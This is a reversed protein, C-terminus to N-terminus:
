RGKGEFIRITDEITRQLVTLKKGAARTKELVLRNMLEDSPQCIKGITWACARKVDPDDDREFLTVVERAVSKENMQGLGLVAGARVKPSRDNLAAKLQPISEKGMLALANIAGTRQMEDDSKLMDLLIPRSHEGFRALAVSAEAVVAESDDKMMEVLFDATEKTCPMYGLSKAVNQRVKEPLSSDELQKKLDPFVATGLKGMAECATQQIKSSPDKFGDFVAPFAEKSRTEGLGWIAIERVSPNKSYDSLLGVNLGGMGALARICYGQVDVGSKEFTEVIKPVAPKGIKALSAAAEICVDKNIDETIVTILFPIAKPSKTSGLSRAAAKRVEPNRDKLGPTISSISDEKGGTGLNNAAETRVRSDSDRMGASVMSSPADYNMNKIAISAANRIDANSDNLLNSLRPGALKYKVQGLSDIASKRVSLDSDYTARLLTEGTAVSRYYALANVAAQRVEPREDRALRNLVSESSPSKFQGLAWCVATRVGPDSDYALREVSSAYAKAKSSGLTYVASQRVAGSRNTLDNLAAKSDQAFAASGVSCAILFAAAVKKLM